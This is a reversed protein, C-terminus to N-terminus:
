PHHDCQCERPPSKCRSLPFLDCRNRNRLGRLLVGALRLRERRCLAGLAVATYELVELILAPPVTEGALIAMAEKVGIIRALPIPIRDHGLAGGAMFFRVPCPDCFATSTVGIRVRWSRDGRRGRKYIEAEVAVAGDPLLKDFVRAFVRLDGAHRAVRRVAEFRGAEGTVFRMGIPLCQRGTERTMRDMLGQLDGEAPIHRRAGTTGAM